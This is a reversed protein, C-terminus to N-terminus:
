ADMWGEEEAVQELIALTRPWPSPPSKEKEPEVRRVAHVRYGNKFVTRRVPDVVTDSGDGWDIAEYGRDYAESTSCHSFTGWTSRKSAM